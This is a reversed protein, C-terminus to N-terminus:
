VVGRNLIEHQRILQICGDIQIINGMNFEQFVRNAADWLADGAAIIRAAGKGKAPAFLAKLHHVVRPVGFVAHGAPLHRFRELRELGLAGLFEANM